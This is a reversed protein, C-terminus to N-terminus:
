SIGKKCVHNSEVNSEVNTNCFALAHALSFPVQFFLYFSQSYKQLMYVAAHDRFPCNM